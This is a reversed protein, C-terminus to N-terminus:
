AMKCFHFINRDRCIQNGTHHITVQPISTSEIFVSDGLNSDTATYDETVSTSDISVPSDAESNSVQSVLLTLLLFLFAGGVVWYL